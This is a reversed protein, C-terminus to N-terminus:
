LQLPNGRFVRLLLWLPTFILLQLAGLLLFALAGGAIKQIWDIAREVAHSFAPSLLSATTLAAAVGVLVVAMAGRGILWLLAAIAVALAGRALIGLTENRQQPAPASVQSWDGPATQESEPAREDLSTPM